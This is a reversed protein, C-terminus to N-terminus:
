FRRNFQVLTPFIVSFSMKVIPFTVSKQMKGVKSHLIHDHFALFQGTKDFVVEPGPSPIFALWGQKFPGALGAFGVGNLLDALLAKLGEDFVVPDEIRFSGRDEFAAM